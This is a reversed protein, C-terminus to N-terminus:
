DISGIPAYHLIVNYAGKGLHLVNKVSKVFIEISFSKADWYGNFLSSSFIPQSEREAQDSAKIASHRNFSLM